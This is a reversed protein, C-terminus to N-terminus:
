NTADKQTFYNIENVIDLLAQARVKEDTIQQAAEHAAGVLNAADTAQIMMMTTRFKEEPTQDLKDVLPALEELATKKLDLLTDHDDGGISTAVPSSISTEEISTVEPTEEVTTESVTEEPEPVTPTDLASTDDPTSNDNTMSNTDMAPADESATDSDTTDFAPASDDSPTDDTSDTTVAPTEDLAPAVTVPTDDTATSDESVSSDTAPTDQDTVVGTDDGVTPNITTVEENDDKHDDHGFM